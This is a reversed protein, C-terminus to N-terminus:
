TRKVFMSIAQLDIEPNPLHDLHVSDINNRVQAGWNEQLRYEM